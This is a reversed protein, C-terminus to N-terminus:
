DPLSLEKSGKCAQSTHQKPASHRKGTAREPDPRPPDVRTTIFIKPIELHLNNKSSSIRSGGGGRKKRRRRLQQQQQEQEKDINIM